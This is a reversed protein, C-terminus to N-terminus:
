PHAPDSRAAGASVSSPPSRTPTPWWTTRTSSSSRPLTRVDTVPRTFRPNQRVKVYFSGYAPQRDESQGILTFGLACTEPPIQDDRLVLRGTAGAGGRVTLNGPTPAGAPHSIGPNSGLVTEAAVSQITTPQEYDCPLYQKLYQTFTIPTDHHNSRTGVVM